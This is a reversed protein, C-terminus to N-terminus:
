KAIPMAQFESVSECISYKKIIKHAEEDTVRKINSEEVDICMDSSPENNYEIFSEKKMLSFAQEVDVIQPEELYENYSSYRYDELKKCLGAKVPNQHIYRIVTLFYSDDEVPESNFRDQFLHGKRLYKINYWYVYKSGIRKFVQGITESSFRMFLHFHNGM